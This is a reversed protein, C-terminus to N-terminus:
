FPSLWQLSTALNPRYQMNQDLIPGIIWFQYNMWFTHRNQFNLAIEIFIFIWKRKNDWLTTKRCRSFFLLVLSDSVKCPVVVTRKTEPGLHMLHLDVLNYQYVGWRDNDFTTPQRISRRRLWIVEIYAPRIDNSIKFPVGRNSHHHNSTSRLVFSQFMMDEFSISSRAWFKEVMELSLLWCSNLLHPPTSTPSPSDCLWSILVVIRKRILFTRSYEHLSWSYQSFHSHCIMYQPLNPCM